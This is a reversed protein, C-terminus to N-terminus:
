GDVAAALARLVPDEDYRALRLIDDRPATPRGRDEWFDLLVWFANERQRYWRAENEAELAHTREEPTVAAGLDVAARGLAVEHVAGFPVM